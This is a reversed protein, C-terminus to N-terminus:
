YLNYAPSVATLTEGSKFVLSVSIIYDGTQFDKDPFFAYLFADGEYIWRVQHSATLGFDDFEICKTQTLFFPTLKFQSDMSFAKVDSDVNRSLFSIKVDSIPDALKIGFHESHFIPQIQLVLAKAPCRGHSALVPEEGSNDLLVVDVGTVSGEPLDNYNFQDEMDCTTSMLTLSFLALFLYICTNKFLRNM